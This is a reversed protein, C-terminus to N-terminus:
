HVLFTYGDCLIRTVTNAQMVVWDIRHSALSVDTMPAVSHVGVQLLAAIALGIIMSRRM